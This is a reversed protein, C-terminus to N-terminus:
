TTEFPTKPSLGYLDEWFTLVLESIYAAAERDAAARFGLGGMAVPRMLYENWINSLLFVTPAKEIFLQRHHGGDRNEPYRSFGTRYEDTVAPSNVQVKRNEVSHASVHNEERRGQGSMGRTPPQNRPIQEPDRRRRDPADGDRLAGGVSVRTEGKLSTPTWPSPDDWGRTACDLGCATSLSKETNTASAIEVFPGNSKDESPTGREYSSHGRTSPASSVGRFAALPWTGNGIDQSLSFKPDSAARLEDISSGLTPRICQFMCVFLAAALRLM